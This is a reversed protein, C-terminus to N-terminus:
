AEFIRHEEVFLRQRGSVHALSDAAVSRGIESDYAAEFAYQSDFWLESIGDVGGTEDGLVLNFRADRVAPLQAALPAHRELWWEAFEERSMGERRTLLIIAKFAM